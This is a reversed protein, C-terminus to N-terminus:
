RSGLDYVTTKPNYTKWDFWYDNLVPIKKLERGSLAGAVSKGTFDWETATEADVLRWVSSATKLFFELKRGDVRRDFARVSKKDDALVLILPVGGIEDVIPNQRLLDDLPYARSVGNINIGVILTRPTLSPDLAQATAVPVSVMKKEWDLSAYRNARAIREEPKLVRGQPKEQKGLRFTLEDHYVPVL